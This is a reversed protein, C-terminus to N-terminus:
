LGNTKAEHAISGYGKQAAPRITLYNKKDCFMIRCQFIPSLALGTSGQPLNRYVLIPHESYRKVTLSSINTDRPTSLRLLEVASPLM